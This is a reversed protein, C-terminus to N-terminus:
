LNLKLNEKYEKILKFVDEQQKIEEKTFRPKLKHVIDITKNMDYTDKKIEVLSTMM